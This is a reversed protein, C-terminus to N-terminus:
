RGSIRRRPGNSWPPRSWLSSGVLGFVCGAFAVFYGPGASTTSDLLRVGLAFTCATAVLAVIFISRGFAARRPLTTVADFGLSALVIGCLLLFLPIWYSLVLPLRTGPLLRTLIVPSHFGITGSSGRVYDSVLHLQSGVAILLGGLAVVGAPVRDLTRHLLVRVGSTNSAHNTQRM